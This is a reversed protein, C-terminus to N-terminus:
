VVPAVESASSAGKLALMLVDKKLLETLKFMAYFERRGRVYDAVARTVSNQDRIDRESM